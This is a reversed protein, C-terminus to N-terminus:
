PTVEFALAATTQIPRLGHWANCEYILPTVLVARGVAAYAPIPLALRLKGPSAADLGRIADATMHRTGALDIRTGTADIMHRSFTASCERGLDRRVDADVRLVGGPRVPETTYGLMVFPPEDDAIMLGLGLASVILLGWALWASRQIVGHVLNM